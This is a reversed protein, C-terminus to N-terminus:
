KEDPFYLLEVNAKEMLSKFENPNPIAKKPIIITHGELTAVYFYSSTENIGELESFKLKGSGTKNKILVHKPHIEFTAFQGILDKFAIQVFKVFNKKQKWDFLRPYGIGTLVAMVLCYAVANLNDEAYFVGALILPLLTLIVWGNRRKNRFKPAHKAYFLQFTLYDYEELIYTIKM